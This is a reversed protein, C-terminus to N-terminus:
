GSGMQRDQGEVGRGVLHEAVVQSNLEQSVDPGLAHRQGPAAAALQHQAAARGEFDGLGIVQALDAEEAQDAVGEQREASLRARDQTDDAGRRRVRGHQDLQDHVLRRHRILHDGEGVPDQRQRQDDRQEGRGQDVQAQM